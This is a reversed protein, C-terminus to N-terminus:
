PWLKVERRSVRPCFFATRVEWAQGRYEQVVVKALLLTNSWHLGSRYYCQRDPMSASRYIGDPRRIAGEIWGWGRALEPHDVLIHRRWCIDELAVNIGRPDTCLLLFPV